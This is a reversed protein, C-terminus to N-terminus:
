RPRVLYAVKPVVLVTGIARVADIMEWDEAYGPVCPETIWGVRRAFDTKVAYSAGVDGHEWKAPDTVTPLVSGDSYQMQFVLLDASEHHEQVLEAFDSTLADDDGLTSVWPTQVHRLLRNLTPGCGTRKLDFGLMLECPVTQGLVSRRARSLTPRGITPILVSLLSM